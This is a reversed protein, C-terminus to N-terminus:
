TASREVRAALGQLVEPFDSAIAPGIEEAGPGMAQLVYTVLSAGAGRGEIRHEVTVSLDGVRTEDVFRQNDRVDILRSRLEDQGTPKMTFWTGTAFPGELAIHEVGANWRSWGAVDRFVAWIAEPAAKIEIQHETRFTQEHMDQSM